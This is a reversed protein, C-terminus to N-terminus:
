LFVLIKVCFWTKDFDIKKNQLLKQNTFLWLGKKESRKYKKYM